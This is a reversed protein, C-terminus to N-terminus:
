KPREVSQDLRRRQISALHLLLAVGAALIASTLVDLLGHYRMILQLCFYAFLMLVLPVLWRRRLASISVTLSAAFASHTSFDLGISAWIQQRADIARVLYVIAVAMGASLYYAVITRLTRPRRVLPAALAVMALLPNFSDAIADLVRYTSPTV